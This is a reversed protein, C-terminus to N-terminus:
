TVPKVISISGPRYGCLESLNVDRTMDKEQVKMDASALEEERLEGELTGGGVPFIILSERCALKM